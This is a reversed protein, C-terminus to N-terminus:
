KLFVAARDEWPWSAWERQAAVASAIAADIEAQGALHYDGLVHRHDHPMVATATKGTSVDKGDIVMPIDIREGAMAARRAKLEAREPSGPAYSRVPENLPPPIQRRGNFSM